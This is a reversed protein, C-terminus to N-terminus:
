ANKAKALAVPDTTTPNPAQAKKPRSPVPQPAPQPVPKQAPAAAPAPAQVFEACGVEHVLHQAMEPPVNAVTGPAFGGVGHASGYTTFKVQQM